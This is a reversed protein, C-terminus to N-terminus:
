SLKRIRCAVFYGVYGGLLGMVLDSATDFIYDSEIPIGIMVEYVEWSIAVALVVSLVKFTTLFSRPVLIKLDYLAFVLLAVVVGGLFHMPIDFWWFKWYLYLELAIAHIVSLILGAVLFFVTTLQLM